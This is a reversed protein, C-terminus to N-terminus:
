MKKQPMMLKNFQNVLSRMANQPETVNNKETLSIESANSTGKLTATVGDALTITNSASVRTEGNMTYVANEAKTTATSVGFHQALNGSVSFNNEAGTEKATIVLQSTGKKEDFSVSATVGTNASNIQKALDEQVSRNTNAKPAVSFTHSKGDSGTITLSSASSWGSRIEDAKLADGANQQAKAVNSVTFKAEQLDKPMTKGSAVFITM